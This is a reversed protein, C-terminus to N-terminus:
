GPTLTPLCKGPLATACSYSRIQTSLGASHLVSAERRAADVPSRANWEGHLMFVKLGRCEQWRALPRFGGPIWGNIAAVGAFKSPQTLALRFAVAAGEGVGVLFIRESHIHLTRRVQRISALVGDEIADISESGGEAMCRRLTDLDSERRLDTKSLGAPAKAAAERKFSDGWGFGVVRGSRVIPEPGRLSLGVYNRWSVRPAAAIMRQEDSGRGHLLVLLPYAYNPEYRQPVFRAEILKDSTSTGTASFDM